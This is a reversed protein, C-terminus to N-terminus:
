EEGGVFLDLHFLLQTQMEAPVRELVEEISLYDSHHYGGHPCTDPDADIYVWFKPDYLVTTTHIETDKLKLYPYGNWGQKTAECCEVVDFLDLVEGSLIKM